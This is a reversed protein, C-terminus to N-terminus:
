LIDFVRVALFEFFEVVGGVSRVGLDAPNQRAHALMILHLMRRLMNQNCFSLTHM